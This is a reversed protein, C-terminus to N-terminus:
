ALGAKEREARALELYGRRDAPDTVVAAQREYRAAKALQEGSRTRVPGGTAAAITGQVGRLQLAVRDIGLSLARARAEVAKMAVQALDDTTAKRAAQSPLARPRAAPTVGAAKVLGAARKPDTTTLSESALDAYMRAAEAPQRPQRGRRRYEAAANLRAVLDGRTMKALATVPVRGIDAGRAKMLSDPIEARRM